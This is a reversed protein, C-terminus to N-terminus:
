VAREDLQGRLRRVDASLRGAVLGILEFGFAPNQYYLEKVTGEDISLVTCDTACRATLQRQKDPAFFAIEGFISGPEIAEGIEVLEIRGETLLYLREAREGQRFIVAGAELKASRMYPKLWVGSLEASDAAVAAVRRTLRTMERVRYLNIPLLALNLLLMPLSPYLAGYAIFGLNAGVALWRLPIMTKVFSSVIVLGGALGVSVFAIWVSTTM